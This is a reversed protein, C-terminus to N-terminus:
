YFFDMHITRRKRFRIKMNMATHNLKNNSNKLGKALSDILCSKVNKFNKVNM